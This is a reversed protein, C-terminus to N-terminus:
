ISNAADDAIDDSASNDDEIIESLVQLWDNGGDDQDLYEEMATKAVVYPDANDGGNIVADDGYLNIPPLPRRSTAEALAAALGDQKLANSLGLGQPPGPQPKPTDDDGNMLPSPPVTNEEDAKETDAVPAASSSAGVALVGIAAVATVGVVGVLPSNETNSAGYRQVREEEIKRRRLDRQQEEALQRESRAKEREQQEQEMILREQEYMEDKRDVLDVDEGMARLKALQEKGADVRELYAANDTEKQQFLALTSPMTVNLRVEGSEFELEHVQNLPIGAILSSLLAPGTGDPFILLISDGSYQTEM